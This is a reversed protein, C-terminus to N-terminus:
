FIGAIKAFLTIVSIATFIMAFTFLRIAISRSEHLGSEIKTDIKDILKDLKEEIHEFRKDVQEFRKDVQEFRKDVDTKLDVIQTQTDNFRVHVDKFKENVNEKFDDLQQQLHDFRVEFYKSTPIVNAVLVDITDQNLELKKHQNKDAM